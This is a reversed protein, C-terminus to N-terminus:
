WCSSSSAYWRRSIRWRRREAVPQAQRLRQIAEFNASMSPAARWGSMSSRGRWHPRAPRGAPHQEELEKRRTAILQAHLSGQGGQAAAPEFQYGDRAHGAAMAARVLRCSRIGGLRAGGDQALDELGDVIQQLGAGAHCPVSQKGRGTPSRRTGEDATESIWASFPNTPGLMEYQLRLPHLKRMAEAVPPTVMAKVWPQLFARYLALNIDSLRAAAEFRREDELDNGGLARIDDLTRAECRM